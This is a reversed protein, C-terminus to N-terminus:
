TMRTSLGKKANVHCRNRRTLISRTIHYRTTTVVRSRNEVRSDFGNMSDQAGEAHQGPDRLLAEFVECLEIMQM